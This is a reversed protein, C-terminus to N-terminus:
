FMMWVGGIAAIWLCLYLALVALLARHNFEVQPGEREREAELLRRLEDPDFM